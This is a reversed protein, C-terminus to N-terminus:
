GGSLAQFIHVEGDAHLFFAGQKTAVLLSVRGTEPAASM